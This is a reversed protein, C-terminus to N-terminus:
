KSPSSPDLDFPNNEDSGQSTPHGAKDHFAAAKPATTRINTTLSM